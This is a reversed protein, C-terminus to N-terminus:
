YTILGEKIGYDGYKQAIKEVTGDKYMEDLTQQVQNKLQDNGKKFGIGYQESVIPEDIIKYNQNMNKEKLHYKASPIDIIIADCIESSLDLLGTNYDKILTLSEFSDKLSKKDNDLVNLVSNGEQVEVKKGKLDELKNIQSDSKVLVVQTSNFYPKSWTYENERGNITLESWICDIQGSELEMNKTAWSSLPQPVFTWNNRKCVEKALELDFGVYDGNSDMYGFPPFESDFGVVLKHDNDTNMDVATIPAIMLLSILCILSLAIYKSKM